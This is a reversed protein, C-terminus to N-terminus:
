SEVSRDEEGCRLRLKDGISAAAARVGTRIIFEGNLGRGIPWLTGNRWRDPPGHGVKRPLSLEENGRGREGDKVALEASEARSTQLPPVSERFISVKVGKSHPSHAHAHPEEEGTRM